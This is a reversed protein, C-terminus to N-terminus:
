KFHEWWYLVWPSALTAVIIIAARMDAWTKVRGLAEAGKDELKDLRAEIEGLRAAIENLNM